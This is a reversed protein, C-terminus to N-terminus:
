LTAGAGVLQIVGTPKLKHASLTGCTQRRPRRDVAVDNSGGAVLQTVRCDAVPDRLGFLAAGCRMLHVVAQGAPPSSLAWSGGPLQLPTRATARRSRSKATRRHGDKSEAAAPPHQRRCPGAGRWGGAAEGWWNSMASPSRVSGAGAALSAVPASRRCGHDDAV